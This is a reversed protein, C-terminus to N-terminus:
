EEQFLENWSYTIESESVLIVCEKHIRPVSNFWLWCEFIYSNYGKYSYLFELEAGNDLMESFQAPSVAERISKNKEETDTFIYISINSDTNKYVKKFKVEAEGTYSRSKFYNKVNDEDVFFGEKFKFTLFDNDIEVKTARCDHLSISDNENNDSFKYM